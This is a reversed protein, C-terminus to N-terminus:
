SYYQLQYNALISKSMDPHIKFPEKSGSELPPRPKTMQYGLLQSILRWLLLPNKRPCETSCLTVQAQSITQTPLIAQSTPFITPLGPLNNLNSVGGLGSVAVAKLPTYPVTVGKPPSQFM